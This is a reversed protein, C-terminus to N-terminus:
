YEKVIDNEDFSRVISGDKDLSWFDGTALNVLCDGVIRKFGLRKLDAENKIKGACKVTKKQDLFLDIGSADIFQMKSLDYGM